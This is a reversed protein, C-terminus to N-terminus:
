TKKVQSNLITAAPLGFTVFTNQKFAHGPKRKAIKKGTQVFKQRKANIKAAKCSKKGTQVIKQANQANQLPNTVVKRRTQVM